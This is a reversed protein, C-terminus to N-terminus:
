AKSTEARDLTDPRLEILADVVALGQGPPYAIVPNLDLADIKDGVSAALRGMRVLVDCLADIDIGAAGRYGHLLPAIRLEDIMELAVDLGFPPLRLTSDDMVEADTGGAGLVVVPGFTDDRKIGLILERGAPAQQVVMIGSMKADPRARAVRAWVQEYASVVEDSTMLGTVVGGFESRHPLDPSAAKVVYPPALARAADAAASASHVLRVTPVPFGLSSLLPALEDETIFRRGELRWERLARELRAHEGPPGPETSRQPLTEGVSRWLRLAEVGVEPPDITFLAADGFIQDARATLEGARYQLVIMPKTLRVAASAIGTAYTELRDGMVPILSCVAVDMEEEEFYATLADALVESGASLFQGGSDFPNGPTTDPMLAKLREKIRASPEPLVHGAAELMDALVVAMGGGQAYVALQYRPLVGFREVLAAATVAADFSGARHIGWQRFAAACVADSTALAGTHAAAARRGSDSTGSKIVFLTKGAQSASQAARNLGDVDRLAEIYCIVVRVDDRGGYYSVLDAITVDVENGVVALHGVGAGLSWLRNLLTFGCGGSQSVIAIGGPRADPPINGSAFPVSGDAFNAVGLTNPGLVRIGTKEAINRLEAQLAIGEPDGTEAFGSGVVTAARVGLAGCRRVIDVAADPRTVVVALDPMTPLDEVSPFCILGEIESHNPNVPYIAGTFGYHRLNRIPQNAFHGPRPSAGVVAVAAPTVLADLSQTAPRSPDNV